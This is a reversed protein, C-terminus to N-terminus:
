GRIARRATLLATAGLLPAFLAMGVMCTQAAVLPLNFAMQASADATRAAMALIGALTIAATVLLAAPLQWRPATGLLHDVREPAIGVVSADAREGFVMMARALAPAGGSRRVASEDAALEALSEYRLALRRLAPLFFLADSLTRVVDIRLPDRRDRHHREHALVADLESPGLAALAATSVYVRPRLYGACFATPSSDAVVTIDDGLSSTPDLDLSRLVRRQSRAQGVASRAALGIVAVALSALILALVGGVGLSPLLFAKCARAVQDAPPSSFDIARLASALGLTVALAGAVAVAISVSYLRGARRRSLSDDSGAPLASSRLM